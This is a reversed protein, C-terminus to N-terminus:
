SIVLSFWKPSHLSQVARLVLLHRWWQEHLDLTSAPSEGGGRNQNYFSSTVSPLFALLALLDLRGDGKGRPELAPDAVSTTPNRPDIEAATEDPARAGKGFLPEYDLWTKEQDITKRGRSFFM